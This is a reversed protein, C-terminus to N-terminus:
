PGASEAGDVQSFGYRKKMMMMFANLPESIHKEKSWIMILKANFDDGTWNLSKLIGKNLEDYVVMEPLFAIGNHLLLLKKIADLSNIAILKKPKVDFQILMKQLIKIYNCDSKAYIITQNNLDKISIRKNKLLEDDPHATLIIKIKTIEEVILKKDEFQDTILFALDIIGAKFIDVLNFSTCWDIDFGVKPFIFQFDKIIDPLFCTSVTQPTKITLTGYQDNLEGFVSQIEKEINILKQTYDLLKVGEPTLSIKKGSRIFLEKGLSNELSRIQASVTSQALHLVNAANNFSLLSAVVQFTKLERFEM